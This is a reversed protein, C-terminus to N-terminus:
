RLIANEEKQKRGNAEQIFSKGYRAKYVREWHKIHCSDIETSGCKDCYELDGIVKVRLSLCKSCYYVPENNYEIRKDM